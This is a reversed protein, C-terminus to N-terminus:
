PQAVTLFEFVLVINSMTRASGLAAWAGSSAQIWRELTVGPVAALAEVCRAQWRVVQRDTAVAVRLTATM